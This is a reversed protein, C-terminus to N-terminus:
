AIKFGIGHIEKALAFPDKQVKEISKDGYTKYIKQAFSPSVDHGRLFVMVDRISRQDKWCSAIKDIRKEGIGQVELLSRPNEDIVKLTDMGFKKVIREAYVPGIGKIMGSEL